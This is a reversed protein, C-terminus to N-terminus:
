ILVVYLALIYHTSLISSVRLAGAVASFEVLARSYLARGFAVWM